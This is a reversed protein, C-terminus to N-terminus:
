GGEEEDSARLDIRTIDGLAHMVEDFGAMAEEGVREVIETELRELRGRLETAVSAGEDTVRVLFSRRDEENPERVLMGADELRDLIGTMTSPKYGFVRTLESVPCPGYLTTYSLLHGENPEVGLARSAELMHEGIQRAAKHVPSVIRLPDPM